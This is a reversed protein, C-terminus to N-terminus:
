RGAFRDPDDRDLAIVDFGIVADGAPLGRAGALKRLDVQFEYAIREGVRRVGQATGAFRSNGVGFEKHVFYQAPLDRAARHAVDVFIDVGDQEESPQGELVIVDDTVDVAVNLLGRARDLGVAFRVMLSKPDPSEIAQWEVNKPWDAFDGDVVIGAVPPVVIHPGTHALLPASVVLLIPLLLFLWKNM